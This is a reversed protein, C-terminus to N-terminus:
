ETLKNQVQLHRIGGNLTFANRGHLVRRNNFSLLDGPVMKFELQSFGLYVKLSIHM